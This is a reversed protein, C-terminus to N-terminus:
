MKQCLSFTKTIVVVDIFNSPFIHQSLNSYIEVLLEIKGIIILPITSIDSTLSPTDHTATIGESSLISISTYYTFKVSQRYFIRRILM